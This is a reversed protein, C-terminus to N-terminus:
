MKMKMKTRKNLPHFRDSTGGREERRESSVLNESVRITAGTVTGPVALAKTALTLALAAKRSRRAVFINARVLARAVAAARISNAKTIRSPCTLVARYVSAGVMAPGLLAAAIAVCPDTNAVSAPTPNVASGVSAGLV